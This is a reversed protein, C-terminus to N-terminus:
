IINKGLSKNAKLERSFWCLVLLLSCFDLRFGAVVSPGSRQSGVGDSRALDGCGIEGHTNKKEGEERKPRDRERDIGKKPRSCVGERKKCYITGEMLGGRGEKNVGERSGHILERRLQHDVDHQLHHARAGHAPDELSALGVRRLLLPERLRVQLPGGQTDDALSPVPYCGQARHVGLILLLLEQIERLDRALGVLVFTHKTRRLGAYRPM